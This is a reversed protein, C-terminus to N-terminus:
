MSEPGKKREVRFAQTWRGGLSWEVVPPRRDAHVTDVKTVCLFLGLLDSAVAKRM